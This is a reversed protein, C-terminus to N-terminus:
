RWMTTTDSDANRYRPVMSSVYPGCWDPTVLPQKVPKQDRPKKTVVEDVLHSLDFHEWAETASIDRHM